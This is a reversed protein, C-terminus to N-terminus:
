LVIGCVLVLLNGGIVTIPCSVLLHDSSVLHLLGIHLFVVHEHSLSGSPGSL